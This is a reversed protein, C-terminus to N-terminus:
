KDDCQNTITMTQYPLYVKQEVRTNWAKIAQEKRLFWDAGFEMFCKRTGCMVDWSEEDESNDTYLTAEGGCFPCLLLAKPESLKNM